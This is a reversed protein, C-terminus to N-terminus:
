KSEKYLPTVTGPDPRQCGNSFCNATKIATGKRKALFVQPGILDGDGDRHGEVLYASPEKELKM